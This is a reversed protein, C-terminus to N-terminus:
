YIMLPKILRYSNNPLTSGPRIPSSPANVIDSMFSVAETQQGALAYEIALRYRLGDYADAPYPHNNIDAQPPWVALLPTAITVSAEPGWGASAENLVIECYALLGSPPVLKYQLPYAEFQQGNWHYVQTITTPCAPFLLSTMSLDSGGTENSIAEAETHPEMGFDIPLQQQLTLEVPPSHSLDFIHPLTVQSSGPTVTRYIVLEPSGDGTLDNYFSTNEHPHDFDFDNYLPYVSTGAPNEVLWLYISGVGTIEILQRGLEGPQPPLPSIQLTLRTEYLSFWSPLDSSRVQESAIASQILGAYLLMARPDLLRALNYAQDWRWPTVNLAQPFRLIFEGEAYALARYWINLKNLTTSAKLLEITRTADSLEWTKLRYRDNYQAPRAPTITRILTSTSTPSPTPTITVTSSPRLTWTPRPTPTITSTTTSTATFTPILTSTVYISTATPTTPPNAIFNIMAGSFLLVALILAAMLFYILPIRKSTGAAM